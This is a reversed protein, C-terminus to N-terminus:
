QGAGEPAPIGLAHTYVGRTPSGRSSAMLQVSASRELPLLVSCANEKGM